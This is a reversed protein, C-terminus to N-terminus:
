GRRLAASARTAPAVATLAGKGPQPAFPRGPPARPPTAGFALPTSSCEDAALWNCTLGLRRLAVFM